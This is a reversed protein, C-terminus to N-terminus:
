GGSPQLPELRLYWFRFAVTQERPLWGFEPGAEKAPVTHTSVFEVENWGQRVMDPGVTFRYAGTRGPTRSLALHNLRRKNLFVTVAPQEAPDATEAPDMRLTLLYPGPHPLLVRISVPSGLAVRVTIHRKRAESWPGRFAWADRGGAAVNVAEGAALTERLVLAPMVFYGVVVALALGATVGVMDPRLLRKIATARTQSSGLARFGSVIRTVFFAAAVLYFPYAHATFRWEGGGGVSWTLAYPALSTVLVVLLLRGDPSWLQLMLGGVAAAALLSGLWPSWPDFGNWKNLLPFTFLGQVATDIAGLPRATFKSAVYGLASASGPSRAGEAAQYYVTHYNVAFFPDGTALACSILYPAVLLVMVLAAAAPWTLARAQRGGRLQEVAVWLLAPLVFSLASLRTLCAGAAAIGALVATLPGPRQRLRLMSCATLVVFLGFTDDRWGDISWGIAEFEIALLLAAILGVLPSAFATGLLFTAPIALTAGSASAYSLAVDSGALANLWVRTLALFVPERVHAQYFHRMERAFRLYNIPDGGVYPEPDRSWRVRDPRVASAASVAGREVARAWAPRDFDPYRAALADLRLVGGIVTCALLAAALAARRRPASWTM